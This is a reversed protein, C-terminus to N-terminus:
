IHRSGPKRKDDPEGVTPRIAQIPACPFEIVGGPGRQLDMGPPPAAYNTKVVILELSGDKRYRKPSYSNGKNNKLEPPSVSAVWRAGDSLSKVGRAAEAGEGGGKRWHHTVLVTPKGPAANLKEAIQIFRTGAASDNEAEPGAWRSLPDLVILAWPGHKVALEVLARAAETEESDGTKSDKSQLPAIVGRMPLAWLREHVMARQEATLQMRQGIRHIRRHLEDDSEEGMAVLVKGPTAVMWAGVGPGPWPLGAAVAVALQLALMSKGVGGHAALMGVEGLPLIGVGDSTTLLWARPPPNSTLWARRGIPAITRRMYAAAEESGAPEFPVADAEPDDPLEGAMLLDHDDRTDAM